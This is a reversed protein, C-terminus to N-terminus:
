NLSKKKLLIDEELYEIDYRKQFFKLIREEEKRDINDVIVLESTILRDIVMQGTIAKSCEFQRPTGKHDPCWNWDGPDFKHRGWCDTCVSKEIIRVVNDTPEM